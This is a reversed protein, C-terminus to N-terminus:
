RLSVSTSQRSLIRVLVTGSVGFAEQLRRILIGQDISNLAASLDTSVFGNDTVKLLDDAARLLVTETSNSKKKLAEMNPRVDEKVHQERRTETMQTKLKEYNEKGATYSSLRM